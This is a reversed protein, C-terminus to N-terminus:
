SFPVLSFLATALLFVIKEQSFAVNRIRELVVLAETRDESPRLARLRNPGDTIERVSERVSNADAQARACLRKAGCRLNHARVCFSHHREGAVGNGAVRSAKRSGPFIPQARAGPDLVPGGPRWGAVGRSAGFPELGGRGEALAPSTSFIARYGGAPQSCGSLRFVICTTKSTFSQRRGLLAGGQRSAM